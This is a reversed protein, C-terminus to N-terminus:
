GLPLRPPRPIISTPRQAAPPHGLTAACFSTCQVPILVGGDDEPAPHPHPRPPLCFYWALACSPQLSSPTGLPHLLGCHIQNSKIQLACLRTDARISPTVSSPISMSPTVSPAHQAARAHLRTSSQPLPTASPWHLPPWRPTNTLSCPERSGAVLRECSIGLETGTCEEVPGIPRRRGGGPGM